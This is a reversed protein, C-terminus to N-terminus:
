ALIVLSKKIPVQEAELNKLLHSLFMYMNRDNFHKLRCLNKANYWYLIQCQYCSVRYFFIKVILCHAKSILLSSFWKAEVTPNIQLYVDDRLITLMLFDVIDFKSTRIILNEKQERVDISLISQVHFWIRYYWNGHRSYVCHGLLDSIDFHLTFTGYYKHSWSKWSYSENAGDFLYLKKWYDGLILLLQLFLLMNLVWLLCWPKM